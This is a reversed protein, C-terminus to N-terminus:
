KVLCVTSCEDILICYVNSLSRPLAPIDPLSPTQLQPSSSRGGSQSSSGLVKSLYFTFSFMSILLIQLQPSSSCGGSQSSSWLVKILYFTFIFWLLSLHKYILNVKFLSLTLHTGFLFHQTFILSFNFFDFSYSLSLPFRISIM